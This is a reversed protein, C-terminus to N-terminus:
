SAIGDGNIVIIFNMSQTNSRFSSPYVTFEISWDWLDWLAGTGYGLICWDSCFHACKQESHHMTPYPVPASHSKHILGMVWVSHLWRFAPIQWANRQSYSYLTSSCTIVNWQSSPILVTDASWRAGNSAPGDATATIVLIRNSRYICKVPSPFYLWRM